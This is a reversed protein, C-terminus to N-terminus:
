SFIEIIKSYFAKALDAHGQPDLHVADEICPGALDSACLFDCHYTQALERYYLKLERSNRVSTEDFVKSTIGCQCINKGIEIPSVLLIKPPMGNIGSDSKIIKKLLREMGRNIIYASASYYKKLDNTGLMIILLDIPANTALCCEIYEVGSRHEGIPDDFSATRGNLGEEEVKYDFGLHNQLLCPWRVQESYREGTIAKYGWTNSDGFCVIRRM